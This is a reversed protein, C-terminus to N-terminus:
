PHRAAHTRRYAAHGCAARDHSILLLGGPWHRLRDRLAARGALDLHNGPEDLILFDAGSLWAGALAVRV